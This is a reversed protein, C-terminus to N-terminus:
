PQKSWLHRCNEMMEFITIFSCGYGCNSVPDDYYRKCYDVRNECCRVM